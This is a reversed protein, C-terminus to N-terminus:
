ISTLVSSDFADVWNKLSDALPKKVNQIHKLLMNVIQLYDAEQYHNPKLSNMYSM